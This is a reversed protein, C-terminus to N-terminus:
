RERPRPRHASSHLGEPGRGHDLRVAGGAVGHAGGVMAGSRAVHQTLPLARRAAFLSSSSERKETTRCHACQLGTHYLHNDANTDLLQEFQKKAEDYREMGLLLSAPRLRRRHAKLLLNPSLVIQRAGRTYLLSLRDVVNPEIEELHALAKPLDGSEQLVMNKYLLM